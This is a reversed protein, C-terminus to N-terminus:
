SCFSRCNFNSNVYKKKSFCYFFAAFNPPERLGIWLVAFFNRWLCLFFGACSSDNIANSKQQVAIGGSSFLKRKEKKEKEFINQPAFRLLVIFFLNHYV